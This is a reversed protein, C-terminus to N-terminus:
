GGALAGGAATAITPLAQGFTYSAFEGIDNANHIQGVRTVAAQPMEAKIQSIENLQSKAYEPAGAVEAANAALARLGVETGQVGARVGSAFSGRGPEIGQVSRRVDRLGTGAVPSSTPEALQTNLPSTTPASLFIDDAM